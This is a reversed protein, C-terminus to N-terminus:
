AGAPPRAAVGPPIVQGVGWIFAELSLQAEKGRLDLSLYKQTKNQTASDFFLFNTNKPAFFCVLQKEGGIECEQLLCV